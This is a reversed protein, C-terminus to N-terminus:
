PAAPPWHGPFNRRVLDVDPDVLLNFGALHLRGLGAILTKAVPGGEEPNRGLASLHDGLALRRRPPVKDSALLMMDPAPPSLIKEGWEISSLLGGALFRDADWQRVVAYDFCGLRLAHLAPAHDYPDPGYTPGGPGSLPPSLPDHRRWPGTAALSLSDGIITASPRGVWPAPVLGASKRYILVSRPRLNRPASRRGVVLPLYSHGLLDLAVGDPCLVFEPDRALAERFGDLDRVVQVTVIGRDVASMFRGLPLYVGAQRAQLGAPDLVLLVSRSGLSKHAPFLLAGVALLLVVAGALVTTGLRGLGAPFGWGRSIM